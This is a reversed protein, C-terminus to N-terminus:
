ANRVGTDRSGVYVFKHKIQNPSLFRSFVGPVKKTKFTATRRHQLDVALDYAARAHRRAAEHSVGSLEAALFAELLRKADTESPQTGDLPPHRAPDHVAQALSILAERCLLGVAQFQEETRAEALRRRIEGVARDVKPWGTPEHVRPTRGAVHERVQELLPNFIDALFGRRSQYSPLDGSRWRGYWDWLDPFPNSHPIGAKTLKEDAIAYLQRYQANVDDIRPGGTSVAVMIDRIRELISILEKEPASRERQLKGLYERGPLTIRPNLYTDGDHSSVDTASLYGAEILERVVGIPLESEKDIQEPLADRSALELIRIHEEM